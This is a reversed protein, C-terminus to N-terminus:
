KFIEIFTMKLINELKFSHVTRYRVMSFTNFAFSFMYMCLCLLIIDSTHCYRVIVPVLIPVKGTGTCLLFSASRAVVTRLISPYKNSFFYFSSSSVYTRTRVYTTVIAFIFPIRIRKICERVYVVEGYM